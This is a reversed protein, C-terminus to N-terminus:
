SDQLVKLAIFNLVGEASPISVENNRYKRRLVGPREPKPNRHLLFDEKYVKPNRHLQLWRQVEEEYVLNQSLRVPSGCDLVLM